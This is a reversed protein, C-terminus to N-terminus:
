KGHAAVAVDQWEEWSALRQEYVQKVWPLAVKGWSFAYRLTKADVLILCLKPHQKLV